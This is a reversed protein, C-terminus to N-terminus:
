QVFIWVFDTILAMFPDHRLIRFAAMLHHHLPITYFAVVGMGRIVLKIEKLRPIFETKVTMFLNATRNGFHFEFMSRYLFSADVAMVRVSRCFCVMEQFIIQNSKADAAM